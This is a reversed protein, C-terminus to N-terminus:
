HVNSVEPELGLLSPFARVIKTIDGASILLESQFLELVGRMRPMPVSFLIPFSQVVRPLDEQKNYNYICVDWVTYVLVVTCLTSFKPALVANTYVRMACLCYGVEIAHEYLTITYYSQITHDYDTHCYM